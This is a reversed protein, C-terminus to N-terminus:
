LAPLKTNKVYKLSVNASRLLISHYKYFVYQNIQEQVGASCSLVLNFTKSNEISAHFLEKDALVPIYKTLDHLESLEALDRQKVIIMEPKRTKYM